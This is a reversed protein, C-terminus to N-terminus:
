EKRHEININIKIKLGPPIIGLSKYLNLYKFHLETDVLKRQCKRLKFISKRISSAYKNIWDTDSYNPGPNPSLIEM